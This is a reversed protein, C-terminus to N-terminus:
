PRRRSSFVQSILILANGMWEKTNTKIKTTLSCNGKGVRRNYWLFSFLDLIKTLYFIFLGINLGKRAM